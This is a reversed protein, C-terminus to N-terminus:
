YTTSARVPFAYTDLTPSWLGGKKRSRSVEGSIERTDFAETYYYLMKRSDEGKERGRFLRKRKM